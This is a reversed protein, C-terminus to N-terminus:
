VILPFSGMLYVRREAILYWFSTLLSLSAMEYPVEPMVGAMTFVSAYYGSSHYRLCMSNLEGQHM